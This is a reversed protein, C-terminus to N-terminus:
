VLRLVRERCSARGIQKGTVIAPPNLNAVKPQAPQQTPKPQQEQPKKTVQLPNDSNLTMGALLTNKTVGNNKPQMDATASPRVVVAGPNNQPKQAQQQAKRDAAARAAAERERRKREEDDNNGGFHKSFFDGVAKFPNFM